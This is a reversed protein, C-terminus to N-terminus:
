HPFARMPAYIQRCVVLIMKTNAKVVRATASQVVLDEGEFRGTLTLYNTLPFPVETEPM